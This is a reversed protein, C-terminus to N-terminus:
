LDEPLGVDISSWDFQGADQEYEAMVLKAKELDSNKVFITVSGPADARFGATHDGTAIAEIECGALEQVILSAEFDSSVVVLTEPNNPDPEM